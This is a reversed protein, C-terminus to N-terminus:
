AEEQPVDANGGQANPTSGEFALGFLEIREERGRLCFLDGLPAVSFNQTLGSATAGSVVLDVGLEKTMEEVRAACNVADGIVTFQTRRDSGVNGVIAPGSHLGIGIRLPTRDAQPAWTDNLLDLQQLMAVAAAMALDRHHPQDGFANWVAMIGDGMFKDLYGDSVLIVESMATLYENLQQIWQEPATKEALATSGRVDAFLITVERREGHRLVEPRRTLQALVDPSVYVGFQQRIVSRDLGLRAYSAWAWGAVTVLAVPGWPLVLHAGNFAAFFGVTEGILIAFGAPIGWLGQSPLWVMLVALVAGLGGLLLWPLSDSADTLGPGHLFMRTLSANTEVGLYYRARTAFPAPRLDFLGAATAGILVVKGAFFAPAPRGELVDWFSVIPISGSPGAYNILADTRRTMPVSPGITIARAPLMADLAPPKLGAAVRALQVAFHYYVRSKDDAILVQARRYVGDPDAILAVHGLGTAADAFSPIPLAIQGGPPVWLDFKATARSSVFSSSLRSAPGVEVQRPVHVALVVRGHRRVAAAFAADSASDRSDPEDLLLDFGVARAQVLRDLVGAYAARPWPFRGLHSPSMSREDIGVIVIDAPPLPRRREFAMDYAWNQPVTFLALHRTRPIAALLLVFLVLLLSNSLGRRKRTRLSGAISNEVQTM